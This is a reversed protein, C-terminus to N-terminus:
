EDDEYFTGFSYEETDPRFEYSWVCGDPRESRSVGDPTTAPGTEEGCGLTALALVAALYVNRVGMLCGNVGTPQVYGTRLVAPRTM